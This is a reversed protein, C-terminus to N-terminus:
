FDCHNTREAQVHSRMQDRFNNVGAFFERMMVLWAYEGRRTLHFQKGDDEIVGLCKLAFLEKWLRRDRSADKDMSLGFLAMLLDYRAQQISDLRRSATVANGTKWIMRDYRNIAFTNAYMTGDVYSFAGSGVGIYNTDSIIYEDTLGRSRSFCWVSSLFYDKDMRNRLRNYFLKENHLSYTGMTDQMAKGTRKSSMLPYVSTQAVKLDETLIDLDRQLSAESQGPLNFIMDVNLTDVRGAAFALRERNLEGSGYPAYRDMQKLLANDFTQIGVSLRDVGADKLTQLISDQLHNPNTEVSVQEIPFLSRSLELTAALEDPLITPTGGGVYVIRPRYGKDAIVRLEQRLAQFYASAKAPKFKVRHFSCFPCLSECFPIHIYLVGPQSGGVEPMATQQGLELYMQQDFGRRLSAELLRESISM